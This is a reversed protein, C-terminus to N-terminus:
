HVRVFMVDNPVSLFGLLRDEDLYLIIENTHEVTLLWWLSLENETHFYLFKFCGNSRSQWVGAAM